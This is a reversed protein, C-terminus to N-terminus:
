RGAPERDSAAPASRGAMRALMWQEYEKRLSAGTKRSGPKQQAVYQLWAEEDAATSQIKVAPAAPEEATKVPRITDARFLWKSEFLALAAFLYRFIGFFPILHRAVTLAVVVAMFALHSVITSAIPMSMGTEYDATLVLWALFIHYPVLISSYLAIPGHPLFHGLALGVMGAIMLVAIDSGELDLWAWLSM